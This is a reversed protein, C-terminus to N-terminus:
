RECGQSKRQSHWMAHPIKGSWPDFRCGRFCLYPTKYVLTGCPFDVAKITKFRIPWKSRLTKRLKPKDSTEGHSLNYMKPLFEVANCWTTMDSKMSYLPGIM